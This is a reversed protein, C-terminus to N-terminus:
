KTRFELAKIVALIVENREQTKNTKIIKKSRVLKNIVVATRRNINAEKISKYNKTKIRLVSLLFSIENRDKNSIIYM